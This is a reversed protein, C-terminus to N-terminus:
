KRRIIVKFHNGSRDDVFEAEPCEKLVRLIGSGIGRYPLLWSAHGSLNQNRTNSTGSKVNDVTLHNPLHGPSIIEVRDIFVLVRM